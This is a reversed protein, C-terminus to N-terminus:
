HRSEPIPLSVQVKTGLGPTSEIKMTGGIIRVRETMSSLGFGHLGQGSSHSPRRVLADKVDFGKGDDTVTIEISESNEKVQVNANKASAHRVVNSLAEQIIRYLHIETEKPLLKDITDGILGVTLGSSRSVKEVMAEIAARLGLRELHHPHLNASIERVEEISEQVLSAVQKLEERSAKNEQMFQQLENNMVLLDQGLGDHLEAALRKREAEQSEIQQRSFEQQMLKEKRLRTVERKYIFAFLSLFAVVALIKFWWTRWWPPTISIALAIEQRSWEDRSSTASVKFVYDGPALNTYRVYRRDKPKVWEEEFGELRYQYQVLTPADIDIAAFELELVNHSYPLQLVGSAKVLQPPAVAEDNISM